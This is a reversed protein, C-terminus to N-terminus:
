VAEKMEAEAQIRGSLPVIKAVRTRGTKHYVKSLNGVLVGRIREADVPRKTLTTLTACLGNLSNFPHDSDSHTWEWLAKLEEAEDEGTYSHTLKDGRRFKESNRVAEDLIAALLKVEGMTATILFPDPPEVFDEILQLGAGPHKTNAAPYHTMEGRRYQGYLRDAAQYNLSRREAVIQGPTLHYGSKHQPKSVTPSCEM